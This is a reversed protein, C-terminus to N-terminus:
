VRDFAPRQGQALEIKLAFRMDEIVIMQLQQAPGITKHRPFDPWSGLPKIQIEQRIMRNLGVPGLRVRALDIPNERFRNLPPCLPTRPEIHGAPKRSVAPFVPFGARSIGHEFPEAVQELIKGVPQVPSDPQPCMPMKIGGITSFEGITLGDIGARQGIRGGQTVVVRLRKQGVQDPVRAALLLRKQEPRTVILCDPRKQRRIRIRINQDNGPCPCHRKKPGIVHERIDALLGGAQLLDFARMKLRQVARVHLCPHPDPRHRIEDFGRDLRQLPNDIVKASPGRVLQGFRRLHLIEASKALKQLVELILSHVGMQHAIEGRSVLHVVRAGACLM